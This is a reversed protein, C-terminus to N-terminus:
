WNVNLKAAGVEAAAMLTDNALHAYLRRVLMTLASPCKIWPRGRCVGPGTIKNEGEFRVTRFRCCQPCKNM